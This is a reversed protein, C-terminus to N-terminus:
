GATVAHSNAKCVPRFITKIDNALIIHLHSKLCNEPLFQACQATSRAEASVAAVTRASAATVGGDGFHDLIHPTPRYIISYSAM